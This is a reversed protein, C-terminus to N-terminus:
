GKEKGCLCTTSVGPRVPIVKNAVWLPTHHRAEELPQTGNEFFMCRFEGWNYISLFIHVCLFMALFIGLALHGLNAWYIFSKPSVPIFAYLIWGTVILVMGGYLMGIGFLKQGSNVKDMPPLDVEWGLLMKQLYGGGKMFWGVDRSDWTFNVRNFAIIRDMSVIAYVLSSVTLIVAGIIHIRMALNVFDEGGPKLWIILGTIAAPIFGLMLGWHYLRSSLGHKLVRPANPDYYKM